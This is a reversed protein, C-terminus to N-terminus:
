IVFKDAFAPNTMRVSICIRESDSENVIRHPIKTNVWMMNSTTKVLPDVSPHEFISTGWESKNIEVLNRLEFWEM